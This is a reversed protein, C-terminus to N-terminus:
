HDYSYTCSCTILNTTLRVFQIYTYTVEKEALDNIMEQFDARKGVNIYFPQKSRFKKFRGPISQHWNLVSNVKELGGILYFALM